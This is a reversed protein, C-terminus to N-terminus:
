QVAVRLPLFEHLSSQVITWGKDQRAIVGRAELSKLGLSVTPRRAGVMQALTAHTIQLPIWIGDPRVVGHRDAISWFLALLRDDVRPLQSIAQQLLAQRIQQAARRLIAALLKPWRVAITLLRDDLIALEARQLISWGSRVPLSDLHSGELLVLEGTSILRTCVYDALALDATVVGAIVLFARVEGTVGTAQDLQEICWPGPDLVARPLIIHRAETLEEATLEAGLDPDAELLGIM